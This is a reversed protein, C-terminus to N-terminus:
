KDSVQLFGQTEEFPQPHQGGTAYGGPQREVFEPYKPLEHQEPVPKQLLFCKTNVNNM